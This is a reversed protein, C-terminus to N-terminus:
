FHIQTTVEALKAPDHLRETFVCEKETRAFILYPELERATLLIVRSRHGDNL